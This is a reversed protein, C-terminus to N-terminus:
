DKDYERIFNDLKDDPIEQVLKNIFSKIKKRKGQKEFINSEHCKKDFTSKEM